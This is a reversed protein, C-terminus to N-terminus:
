DIVVSTVRAEQGARTKLTVWGIKTKARLMGVRAVARKRRSALIESIRVSGTPFPLHLRHHRFCVVRLAGTVTTPVEGFEM